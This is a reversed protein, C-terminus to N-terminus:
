SARGRLVLAVVVGVVTAAIPAFFLPGIVLELGHPFGLFAREPLFSSWFEANVWVLILLIAGLAAWGATGLWRGERDFRRCVWLIALLLLLPFLGLVGTVLPNQRDARTQEVLAEITGGVGMGSLLGTAAFVAFPALFVSVLGVVVFSRTPPLPADPSPPM